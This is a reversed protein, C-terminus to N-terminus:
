TRKLLRFPKNLGEFSYFNLTLSDILHNFSREAMMLESACSAKLAFSRSIKEPSLVSFRLCSHNAPRSTLLVISELNGQAALHSRRLRLSM